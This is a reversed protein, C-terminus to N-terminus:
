TEMAERLMELELWREENSALEAQAQNLAATTKAFNAPDRRYLNPDSLKRQLVTIAAQLKAIDKPLSELAHKDKFSLKKAGQRPANPRLTHRKQEPTTPLVPGRQILM